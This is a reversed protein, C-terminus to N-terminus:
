QMAGIQTLLSQLQAKLSNLLEIVAPSSAAAAVNSNTTVSGTNAVAVVMGTSNTQLAVNPSQMFDEASWGTVGNDYKVDWWAYGGANTPGGILTGESGTSEKGIISGNASSRVNVTAAILIRNGQSFNATSTTQAFAPVSLVILGLSLLCSSLAFGASVPSKWQFSM